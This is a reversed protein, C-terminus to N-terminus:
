HSEQLRSPRCQLLVSSRVGRPVRLSIHSRYNLHDASCLSLVEKYSLYVPKTKYTFTPQRWCLAHKVVDHGSLLWLAQRESAGCVVWVCKSKLLVGYQGSLANCLWYMICTLVLPLAMGCEVYLYWWSLFTIYLCPTQPPFFFVSPIIM